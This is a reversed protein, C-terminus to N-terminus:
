LLFLIPILLRHTPAFVACLQIDVCIISLSTLLFYICFQRTYIVQVRACLGSLDTTFENFVSNDIKGFNYM